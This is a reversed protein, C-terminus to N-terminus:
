TARPPSRTSSSICPSWASALKTRLFRSRDIVFLMVQQFSKDSLLPLDSSTSLRAGTSFMLAHYRSGNFTSAM